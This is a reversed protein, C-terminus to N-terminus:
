GKSDVINGKADILYGKENVRRENNDVLHAGKRSSRPIIHGQPDKDFIGMVDKIDFRKAQYTFLRMM